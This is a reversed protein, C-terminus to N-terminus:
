STRLNAANEFISICTGVVHFTPALAFVLTQTGVPVPISTERWEEQVGAGLLAGNETKILILTPGTILAVTRHYGM